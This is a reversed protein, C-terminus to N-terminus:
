SDSGDSGEKIKGYFSRLREEVQSNDQCGYKKRLFAIMKDRDEIEREAWARYSQLSHMSKQILLTLRVAIRTIRARLKKTPEIRGGLIGYLVKRHETLNEKTLPGLLWHDYNCLNEIKLKPKGWALKKEKPM